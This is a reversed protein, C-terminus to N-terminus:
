YEKSGSGNGKKLKSNKAELRRHICHATTMTSSTQEASMEPVSTAKKEKCTLDKSSVWSVVESKAKCLTIARNFFGLRKNAVMRTAFLKILIAITKTKATNLSEKKPSISFGTSTSKISTPM